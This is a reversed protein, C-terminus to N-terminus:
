DVPSSVERNTRSLPSHLQCITLSSSVPGGSLRNYDVNHCIRLIGTGRNSIYNDRRNQRRDCVTSKASPM